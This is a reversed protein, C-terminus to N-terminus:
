FKLVWLVQYKACEQIQVNVLFLFFYVHGAGPFVMEPGQTEEVWGGLGLYNRHKPIFGGLHLCPQDGTAMQREVTGTEQDGGRDEQPFGPRVPVRLCATHVKDSSFSFTRTQSPVCFSQALPSFGLHGLPRVVPCAPDM